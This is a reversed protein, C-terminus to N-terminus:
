IEFQIAVCGYEKVQKDYDGFSRYIKVGEEISSVGPLMNDVGESELMDRFTKYQNVRKVQAYISEKKFNSIFEIKEGEKLRLYKNKAIRGETTKKKNKINIFYVNQVKFQIM